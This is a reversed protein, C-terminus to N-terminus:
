TKGNKAASAEDAIPVLMADGVAFPKAPDKDLGSLEAATFIQKRGPKVVWGRVVFIEAVAPRLCRVAFHSTLLRGALTGAAFGCATDILAAVIGAHLFGLYQGFEERWRLQLEVEGPKAQCVELGLWRHFAARDSNARVRSILDGSELM